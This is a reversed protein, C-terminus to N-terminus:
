KRECQAQRVCVAISAGAREVEKLAKFDIASGYYVFCWGANAGCDLLSSFLATSAHRVSGRFPLQSFPEFPGISAHSMDPTVSM